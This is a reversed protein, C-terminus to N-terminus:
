GRIGKFHLVTDRTMVGYDVSRVDERGFVKVDAGVVWALRGLDPDPVLSQGPELASNSSDLRGPEDDMNHSDVEDHPGASLLKVIPSKRGLPSLLLWASLDNWLDELAATREVHDSLRQVRAHLWGVGHIAVLVPAFVDEFQAKTIVRIARALTDQLIHLQKPSVDRRCAFHRLSMLVELKSEVLLWMQAAAADGAEVAVLEVPPVIFTLNYHEIADEVGARIMPTIAADLEIWKSVLNQQVSKDASIGCLSFQSRIYRQLRECAKTNADELQQLQEQHSDQLSKLEQQHAKQENQLAEQHTTREKELECNRKLLQRPITLTQLKSWPLLTYTVYTIVYEITKDQEKKADRLPGLLKEEFQPWTKAIDENAKELVTAVLQPRLDDMSAHIEDMASQWEQAPAHHFHASLAQNVAPTKTCLDLIDKIIDKDTNVQKDKNM